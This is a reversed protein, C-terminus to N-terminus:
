LHVIGCYLHQLGYVSFRLTSEAQSGHPSMYVAALYLMLAGGGLFRLVLPPGTRLDM